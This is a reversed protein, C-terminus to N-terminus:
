YPAGASTVANVCLGFLYVEDHQQPRWGGFFAVFVKKGLTHVSHTYVTLGGAAFNQRNGNNAMDTGHFACVRVPGNKALAHPFSAECDM